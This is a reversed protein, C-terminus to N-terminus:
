DPPDRPNLETEKLPRKRLGLTLPVDYLRGPAFRRHFPRLGPIIVRAVPVELDPRTQDLVLFDLGFRKALKVCAWVQERRDLNAFESFRTRRVSAKGHPQLYAHRRLPLADIDRRRKTRDTALRTDLESVARLTALRPDFDAGAAFEIHERGDETWHLVAVVVPIGFDSTVDLVWLRRDMAAFAARLDRVFSDGLKDLDIEQRRSRNYWWIACADREVLELFGQIIAEEFTNGAACGNSGAVTALGGPGAHFFYLLGTPLHAFREDRLSWVPSWEMESLPDFRPPVSAGDTGHEYQTDSFLWVDNPAVAEGAAFDAFRRTTRIEDGRFIGSYREIAKMLASAEGQEATSGKGCSEGNLGAQLADVTEARPSFSHRAIFSSDLPQERNIRELRSVVGTLPSVHKRFRALTEVPPIARYGSSTIFHKGGARLRIPLPARAPDRLEISGCSPCQPQVGVHHRAITSGLLDLSVIHQHLDTRFGSAIAKGIELAALGIASEAPVDEGLPSAVRRAQKRDLFERTQRNQKMRDTLCRWCASKGPSFIPGILPVIGAPQVLLWDQKQMLQRSNFEALRDDLYDDVLVITLEAARDIVGVGVGRLAAALEREGPGGMSLIQVRAKRLNETVTELRLGLSAWYAAAAGDASRAAVVFGREFLRKFAEDIKETPFDRSLARAIDARREGAGIRSAIACYLEGRLFLKRDESYLCVVDPPLVYVSFNPAFRIDAPHRYAPRGPDERTARGALEGESRQAREIDPDNTM